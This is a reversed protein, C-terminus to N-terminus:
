LGSPVPSRCPYPPGFPCRATGLGGCVSLIRSCRCPAPLPRERPFHAQAHIELNLSFWGEFGDGKEGRDEKERWGFALNRRNGRKKKKLDGKKEGKRWRDKEGRGEVEM